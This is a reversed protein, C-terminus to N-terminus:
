PAEYAGLDCPAARLEGRQDPHKCLSASTVVARAPSGALLARTETPGGNDQLPGLLPDAQLLPSGPASVVACGALSEILNGHGARLAANSALTTCDSGVPAANDAVISAELKIQAGRNKADSFIGGGSTDSTNGAITARRITARGPPYKPGNTFFGDQVYIGGGDGAAHNDSVTSDSLTLANGFTVYIGGGLNPSVNDSINSQSVSVSRLVELGGGLPESLSGNQAITSRVIAGKSVSVGRWPFGRVTGDQLVLRHATVGNPFSGPGGNVVICRTIELPGAHDARVGGQVTLDRLASRRADKTFHLPADVTTADSGAGAITLRTGITISPPVDAVHTGAAVTVTDGDRAADVAAQLSAFCGGAGGPAVCSTAARTSAAALLLGAGILGAAFRDGAFSM